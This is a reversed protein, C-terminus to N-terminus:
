SRSRWWREVNWLPGEFTPNPAVGRVRPRAALYTAVRFLPFASMRPRPRSPASYPPGATARRLAADTPNDTQWRGYFTEQEVGVLDAQVGAEDLQRFLAERMLELREDGAPVAIQVRRTPTVAPPARAAGRRGLAEPMAEIVEGGERIFAEELAARDIGAAVAAREPSSLASGRFDLFLTEWGVRHMLRVPDGVVDPLNVLSPVAAAHVRGNELLALLQRVSQVFRVRVEDVLATGAFWRRNRSLVLGFGPRNSAIAYPGGWVGGSARGGPLVPAASALAVEPARVRGRFVVARPREARVREFAAFGSPPRARRASAVVDSADITRGDSWRARRLVVRVGSRIPAMSRALYPETSGDPLMRFLSPYVPRVLARTLDSATPAYPDLTAPAGVVGFVVTGGRTPTPRRGAPRERPADASTCALAVLAVLAALSRASIPPRPM